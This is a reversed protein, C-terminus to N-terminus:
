CGSGFAFLVDLLDADDVIGDCNADGGSSGDSGFNFLVTLLDADDVCGSGDLDPSPTCSPPAAWLAMMAGLPTPCTNNSTYDYCEDPAVLQGDTPDDDDWQIPGQQSPNGSKTGWLMPQCAGPYLTSSALDSLYIGIYAGSGDQPLQLYFNPNSICINARWVGTRLAGFNFAIGDYINDAAPGECTDDFDEATFIAMIFRTQGDPNTNAWVPVLANVMRGETGSVLQQIDNVWFPNRYNPGFWYRGDGSGCSAGYKTNEGISLTGDAFEVNDFALQGGDNCPSPPLGGAPSFDSSAYPLWPGVQVVRGNILKVRAIELPVAQQITGTYLEPRPKQKDGAFAFSACLIAGVAGLAMTRYRM